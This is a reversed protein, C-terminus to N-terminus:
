QCFPLFSHEGPLTFHVGMEFSGSGMNLLGMDIKSTHPDMASMEIAERM